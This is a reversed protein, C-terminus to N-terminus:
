ARSISHIFNGARFHEAARRFDYTKEKPSCFNSRSFSEM